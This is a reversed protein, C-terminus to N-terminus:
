RSYSLSRLILRDFALLAVIAAIGLPVLPASMDIALREVVLEFVRIYPQLETQLSLGGVVGGGANYSYGFYALPVLVALLIHWINGNSRIPSRKKRAEVQEMVRHTFGSDPKELGSESMWKRTNKDLDNNNANM